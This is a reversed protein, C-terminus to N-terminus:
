NIAQRKKEGSWVQLNYSWSVYTPFPNLDSAFIDFVINPDVEQYIEDRNAIGILM